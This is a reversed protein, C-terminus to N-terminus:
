PFTYLPGAREQRTLLGVVREWVTSVDKLPISPKAHGDPFNVTQSTLLFPKLPM